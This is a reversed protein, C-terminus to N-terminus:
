GAEELYGEKIDLSMTYPNYDMTLFGDSTKLHLTFPEGGSPTFVVAARGRKVKEGGPLRLDALELGESLTLRKLRNDRVPTYETGDTSYELDLLDDELDFWVRYYLKKTTAAEDAYTLLSSLKRLDSRVRTEELSMFRPFAVLVVVAIIALVALLEFM